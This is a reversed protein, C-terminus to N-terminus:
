KKNIVVYMQGFIVTTLEPVLWIVIETAIQANTGKRREHDVKAISGRWGEVVNARPYRRFLIGKTVNYKIKKQRQDTDDRIHRVLCM